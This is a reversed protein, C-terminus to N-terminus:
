IEECFNNAHIILNFQIIANSVQKTTNHILERLSKSIYHFHIAARELQDTNHHLGQNLVIVDYNRIETALTADTISDNKCPYRSKKFCMTSAKLYQVKLNLSEDKNAEYAHWLERIGNYFELMLSDGVMLINKHQLINELEKIPNINNRNEDDFVFHLKQKRDCCQTQNLIDCTRRLNSKGKMWKGYFLTKQEISSTVPYSTKITYCPINNESDFHVSMLFILGVPTVCYTFFM